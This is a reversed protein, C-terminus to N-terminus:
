TESHFLLDRVLWLIGVVPTQIHYLTNVQSIETMIKNRYDKGRGLAEMEELFERREEIERMVEDFRDMEEESSQQHVPQLRNNHTDPDIESGYAMVNQLKQKEETSNYESHVYINHLQLM